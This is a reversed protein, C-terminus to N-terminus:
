GEADTKIHKKMKQITYAAFAAEDEMQDLAVVWYSYIHYVFARFQKFNKHNERAKDKDGANLARRINSAANEAGSVFLHGIKEYDAYLDFMKDGFSVVNNLSQATYGLGSLKSKGFVKQILSDKKYVVMSFFRGTASEDLAGLIKDVSGSMMSAAEKMAALGQKRLQYVSDLKSAHIGRVSENLVSEYDVTKGEIAKKGENFLKEYRNITPFWTSIKHGIRTSIWSFKEAINAFFKTIADDLRELSYDDGILARIQGNDDLLTRFAETAGYKNLYQGIQILNDVTNLDRELEALMRACDMSASFHEYSLETDDWKQVNNRLDLLSEIGINM